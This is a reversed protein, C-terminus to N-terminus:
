QQAGITPREPLKHGLMRLVERMSKVAKVHGDAFLVNVRGPPEPHREVKDWVMPESASTLDVPVRYTYHM